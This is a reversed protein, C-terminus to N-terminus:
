AEPQGGDAPQADGDTAEAKPEAPKEAEVVPEPLLEAIKALADRMATANPKDGLGALVAAAAQANAVIDAAKAKRVKIRPQVKGENVAEFLLNFADLEVTHVKENFARWVISDTVGTVGLDGFAKIVDPRTWGAEKMKALNAAVETAQAEPAWAPNRTGISMTM